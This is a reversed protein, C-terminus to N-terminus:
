KLLEQLSEHATIQALISDNRIADPDLLDSRLGRELVSAAADDQNKRIFVRALQYYAAAKSSDLALAIRAFAEAREPQGLLSANWSLRIHFDPDELVREAAADLAEVALHHNGNLRAAESLILYAEGDDPRIKVAERADFLAEQRRDMDMLIQARLKRAEGDDPIENLVRDVRAKAELVSAGSKWATEARHFQVDLEPSRHGQAKLPMAALSYILFVVVWGCLRKTTM